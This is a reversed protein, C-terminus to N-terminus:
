SKESSKQESSLAPFSLKIASYERGVEVAGHKRYMAVLMARMQKFQDPPLEM